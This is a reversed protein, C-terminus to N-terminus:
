DGGCRPCGQLSRSRRGVMGRDCIETGEVDPVVKYRSFQTEIPTAIAIETGEVDPVVKYCAGPLGNSGSSQQIETGEVDPVVKYRFGAEVLALHRVSKLGRWM